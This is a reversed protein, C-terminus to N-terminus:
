GQIPNFQLAREPLKPGAAHSGHKLGPQMLRLGFRIAGISKRAERIESSSV